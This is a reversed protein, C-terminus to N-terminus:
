AVFAYPPISTYIWMKKVEDSTPPSHDADRGQRKIGPVWQIPSQTPGLVPKSSKSFIFNKVRGPSSSKVDQDDMGYGTAIGVAPDTFM